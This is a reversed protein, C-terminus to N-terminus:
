LLVGEYTVKCGSKKFMAAASCYKEQSLEVARFLDDITADKSKLIYKLHVNTFVKPHEEARIGEIEVEFSEITKRKKRLISLVDMLSCSGMAQLFIEMPSPASNEGGVEPVTDFYTEQGKSNTGKIKMNGILNLKVKM